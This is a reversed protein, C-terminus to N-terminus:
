QIKIYFWIILAICGILIFAIELLGITLSLGIPNKYFDRYSFKIIQIKNNITVLSSVLSSSGSIFDTFRFCGNAHVVKYYGLTESISKIDQIEVQKKWLLRHAIITKSEIIQLKHIGFVFLCWYITLTLAAKIPGQLGQGKGFEYDQTIFFLGVLFLVKLATDLTYTKDTSKGKSKIASPLCNYFWSFFKKIPNMITDYSFGLAVLFAFALVVLILEWNEIM